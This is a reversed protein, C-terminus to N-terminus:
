SQHRVALHDISRVVEKGGVLSGTKLALDRLLQAELPFPPRHQGVQPSIRQDICSGTVLAHLRLANGGKESPSGLVNEGLVRHAPQNVQDRVDFVVFEFASSM